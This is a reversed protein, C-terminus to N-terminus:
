AVEGGKQVDQRLEYKVDVEDSKSSDEEIAACGEMADDYYGIVKPAENGVTKLLTYM